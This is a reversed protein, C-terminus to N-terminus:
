NIILKHTITFHQFNGCGSREDKLPTSEYILLEADENIREFAIFGIGVKLM